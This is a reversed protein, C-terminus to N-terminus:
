GEVFVRHLSKESTEDAVSVVGAGELKLVVLKTKVATEVVVVDYLMETERDAPRPPAGMVPDGRTYEMEENAVAVDIKAQVVGTTCEITVITHVMVTCGAPLANQASNLGADVAMNDVGVAFV